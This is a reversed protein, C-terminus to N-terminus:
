SKGGNIAKLAPRTKLNFGLGEALAIEQVAQWRKGELPETAIVFVGDGYALMQRKIQDCDTSSFQGHRMLERRLDLWLQYADEGLRERLPGSVGSCSGSGGGSERAPAVPEAAHDLNEPAKPTPTNVGNPTYGLGKPQTAKANAQAARQKQQTKKGGKSGNQQLKAVKKSYRELEQTVKHHSIKGDSVTFKHGWDAWFKKFARPELRAARAMVDAKNLIYGGADFLAALLDFYPGRFKSPMAETGGRWDDIYVLMAKPKSM